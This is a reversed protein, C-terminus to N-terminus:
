FPALGLQTAYEHGGNIPCWIVPYAAPCGTYEQCQNSGSWTKTATGTCGNRMLIEDRAVASGLSDLSKRVVTQVDPRLPTALADTLAQKAEGGGLKALAEASRVQYRGEENALQEEVWADEAADFRADPHTGAYDRLEAYRTQLERRSKERTAPSPGGRLTAALTPVAVPGLRLM